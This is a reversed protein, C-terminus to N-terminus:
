HIRWRFIMLSVLLLYIFLRYYIYMTSLLIPNQVPHGSVFTQSPKLFCSDTSADINLWAVRLNQQSRRYQIRGYQLGSARTWWCAIWWIASWGWKLVFGKQKDRTKKKKKLIPEITGRCHLRKTASLTEVKIAALNLPMRYTNDLCFTGVDLGPM